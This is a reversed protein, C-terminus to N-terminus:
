SAGAAKLATAAKTELDRELTGSNLWWAALFPLAALPAWSFWKGPRCKM